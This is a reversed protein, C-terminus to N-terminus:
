TARPTGCPGSSPVIAGHDTTAESGKAGSITNGAM